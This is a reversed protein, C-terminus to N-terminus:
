FDSERYLREAPIVAESAKNYQRGLSLALGARLLQRAAEPKGRFGHVIWMGPEPRLAAAEALLLDNARVAHIILPKGTEKALRAHLRFLRRQVEIDGGRLRDFGCEGIAVVREDRALRVLAKLESLGVARETSWPHIGVSYTGGPEPVDGPEVCVVTDGATARSKDHSHIDSYGGLPRESVSM